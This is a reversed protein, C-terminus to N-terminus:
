LCAKLEHSEAGPLVSDFVVDSLQRGSVPRRLLCHLTVIYNGKKTKTVKFCLTVIEPVSYQTIQYEDKM